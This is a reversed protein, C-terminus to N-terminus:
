NKGKGTTNSTEEEDSSSDDQVTELGPLFTPKFLGINQADTELILSVHKYRNEM